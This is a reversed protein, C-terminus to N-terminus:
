GNAEGRRSRESVVADALEELLSDPMRDLHKTTRHTASFIPGCDVCCKSRGSRLNTFYIDRVTVGCSTCLCRIMRQLHGKPTEISPADGIVEWEGFREGPKPLLTKPRAM